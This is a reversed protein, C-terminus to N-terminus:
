CILLDKSYSLTKRAFLCSLDWRGTSDNFVWM